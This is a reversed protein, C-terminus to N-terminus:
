EAKGGARLYVWVERENGDADTIRARLMNGELEPLFSKAECLSDGMDPDFGVEESTFSEKLYGDAWFLRHYYLEGDYDNVFTLSVTSDFREIVATGTDEGQAAGRVIASLVRETNNDSSHSVTSRYLQAGLAALYICSMAFVSLLLLVFVNQIRRQPIRFGKKESM